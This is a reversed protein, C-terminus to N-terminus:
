FNEEQVMFTLGNRLEGFIHENNYRDTYVLENMLNVCVNKVELEDYIMELKGKKKEEFVRLTM